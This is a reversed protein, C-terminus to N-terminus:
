PIHFFGSVIKLSYLTSNRTNHSNKTITDKMSHTCNIQLRARNHKGYRLLPYLITLYLLILLYIWLTSTPTRPIDISSLPFSQKWTCWTNQFIAIKEVSIFSDADLSLIKSNHQNNTHIHFCLRLCARNPMM